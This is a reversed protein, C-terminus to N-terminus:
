GAPHRHTHLDARCDGREVGELAYCAHFGYSISGKARTAKWLPLKGTTKDSLPPFVMQRLPFHTSQLVAHHQALFQEAGALPNKPQSPTPCPEGLVAHRSRSGKGRDKRCRASSRISAGRAGLPVLTTPAARVAHWCGLFHTKGAHGLRDIEDSVSSAVLTVRILLAAPPAPQHRPVQEGQTNM